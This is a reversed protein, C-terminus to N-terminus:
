YNKEETNETNDNLIGIVKLPKAVEKKHLIIYFSILLFCIVFLIAGTQLTHSTAKISDKEVSTTWMNSIYLIVSIGLITLALM